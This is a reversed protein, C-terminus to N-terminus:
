RGEATDPHFLVVATIDDGCTEAAQAVLAEAFPQPEPNEAHLRSLVKAVRETTIAAGDSTLVLVDAKIQRGTIGYVGVGSLSNYLARPRAAAVEADMWGLDALVAAHHPFTLQQWRGDCLGYAPSDGAWALNWHGSGISAAVIITGSPKGDGSVQHATFVAEVPSRHVATRAALYAVHRAHEAVEATSGTGDVVVGIVAADAAHIHHADACLLRKRGQRSQGGTLKALDPM